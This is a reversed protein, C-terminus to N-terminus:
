FVYKIINKQFTLRIIRPIVTKLEQKDSYLFCYFYIKKAFKKEIWTFGEKSEKKVDYIKLFKQTKIPFKKYFRKKEKKTSFQINSRLHIKKFDFESFVFLFDHIDNFYFSYAWYNDDDRFIKIKM